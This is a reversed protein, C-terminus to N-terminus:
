GIRNKEANNASVKIDVIVQVYKHDGEGKEAMSFFGLGTEDLFDILKDLRAEQEKNAIRIYKKKCLPLTM